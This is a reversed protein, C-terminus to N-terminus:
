ANEQEKSDTEKTVLKKATIIKKASSTHKHVSIGLTPVLTSYFRNKIMAPTRGVFEEAILTWRRGKEEVLRLIASDEEHTFKTTFREKKLYNVYRDRIQKRNLGPIELAIQSWASEGYCEVLRKVKEDEEGTFKHMVRKVVFRRGKESQLKQNSVKISSDCTKRKKAATEAKKVESLVRRKNIPDKETGATIAADLPQQGKPKYSYNNIGSYVEGPEQVAFNREGSDEPGQLKITSPSKQEETKQGVQKGNGM